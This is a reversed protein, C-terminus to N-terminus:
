KRILKDTILNYFKNWTNINNQKIPTKKIPKICIEKIADYWEQISDPDCFLVNKYGDLVEKAYPLSAAIIPIGFVTSETLPLGFTEIKSPFLLASSTAYYKLVIKYDIAGICLINNELEQQRITKYITNNQDITFIVKLTNKIEPKENILKAISKVIILHNKYTLLTAPYFLVIDNKFETFPLYEEIPIFPPNPKIITVSNEKINKFKQLLKEKINPLQVVYHAHKNNKNVFFGYFHAYLFMTRETKQLINWKYKILPLSQHYYVLQPIDKLTKHTFRTCTNQFSILLDPMINNQLCWKELLIFDWKIRQLWNQTTLKHVKINPTEEFLAVTTLLHFEYEKSKMPYLFNIFDKLITLAGSNKAATANILIKKV